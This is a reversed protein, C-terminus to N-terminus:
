AGQAYYPSYYMGNMGNTHAHQQQGQQAQQAQLGAQTRQM